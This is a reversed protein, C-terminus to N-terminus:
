SVLEETAPILTTGSPLTEPRSWTYFVFGRYPYLYCVRRRLMGKSTLIVVPREERTILSWFRSESVLILNHRNRRSFVGVFIFIAAISIAFSYDPM